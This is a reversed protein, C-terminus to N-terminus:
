RASAIRNKLMVQFLTDRAVRRVLVEPVGEKVLEEAVAGWDAYRGTDALEYARNRVSPTPDDNV